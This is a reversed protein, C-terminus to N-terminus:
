AVFPVAGYFYRIGGIIIFGRLERMIEESQVM